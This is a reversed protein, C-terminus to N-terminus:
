ERVVQVLKGQATLPIREVWRLEVPVRELVLAAVSRLHREREPSFPTGRLRLEVATADHLWAVQFQEVEPFDKFLHNWYLSNITRGSALRVLGAERGQLGALTHIGSEDRGDDDFSGLDGVAYRLFPTAGCVTSTWLLRGPEGPGVPRGDGDVVEVHLLPRLVRLPLGAAPQFAMASLERGGYLNLIPVGFAAEFLASQEAFLMEGGNWAAVVRGHGRRDGNRLAERAVYELMSTFGYVAARPFRGLLSMVREVTRADLVYGDVMHLNQLRAIARRQWSQHKGIDRESGWVVIVPMGPRWGMRLRAHFLTAAAARVMAEDHLFPTPEGTSGGTASPRGAVGRALLERPHFRTQLDRKTIIPLSPWLEWLAEPDTCRAAERWEPLADDRAGFHRVRQLLREGMERRAAAPSLRPFRDLERWFPAVGRRAFDAAYLARRLM